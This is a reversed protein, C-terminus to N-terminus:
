IRAKSFRNLVSDQIEEGPIDSVERPVAGSDNVAEDALYYNYVFKATLNQPRPFDMTTALSSPLSNGQRQTPPPTQGIRNDVGDNTNTM